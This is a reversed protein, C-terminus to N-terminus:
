QPNGPKRTHLLDKEVEGDKITVKDGVNIDEAEKVQVTTEKGAADRVTVNIMTVVGKVEKADAAYGLDVFDFTFVMALFLIIILKMKMM